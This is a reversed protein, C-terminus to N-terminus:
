FLARVYEELDMPKIRWAKGIVKAKLKNDRISARLIERSLGSLSQAEALTLLIKDQPPTRKQQLLLDILLQFYEGPVYDIEALATDPNDPDSPDISPKHIIAELEAKLDELESEDFM